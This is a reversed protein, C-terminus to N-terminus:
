TTVQVIADFNRIGIVKETVFGEGFKVGIRKGMMRARAVVSEIFVPTSIYSQPMNDNEIYNENYFQTTYAAIAKMRDEFVDTIDVVFSPEIYRDQIYHFVYKPRWAQQLLGEDDNTEIKRLGAFFSADAILRAARGHDPHRDEPANALVIEPQYKRIYRILKMQNAPNNEFFGDPLQLNERVTVGMIRAADTAEKYRSEVSGRTGLEGETLDVIGVKKGNRIETIITGSCGLEIDDPHAGIALIDLKM